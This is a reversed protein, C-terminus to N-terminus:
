GEGRRPWGLTWLCPIGLAVAPVQNLVWLAGAYALADAESAGLLSLVALGAAAPGAGYGPPLVVASLASLALVGSAALLPAPVSIGVAPLALAFAGLMMGVQLAAGGAHLLVAGPTALAAGTQTTAERLLARLGPRAPHPERTAAMRRGLTAIVVLVMLGGGTALGVLQLARAHADAGLLARWETAGALLAVLLFVGFVAAEIFAVIGVAATAAGVGVGCRRRLMAVLAVDGARGPLLLNLLASVLGVRAVGLLPPRPVPLALWTRGEHVLLAAGRILAAGVLLDWRIRGPLARLQDPEIVHVFAALVLVSAVVQM